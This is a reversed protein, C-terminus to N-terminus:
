PSVHKALVFYGETRPLVLIEIANPQDSILVRPLRQLAITLHNLITIDFHKDVGCCAM